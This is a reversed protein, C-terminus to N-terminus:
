KSGATKKELLLRCVLNERSQLESTHEESRMYAVLLDLEFSLDANPPGLAEQVAFEEILGTGAMLNRIKFEVDHLENWTASWNYPATEILTFLPPTNRPGGPFGQWTRGDPLGDFHCTACSLWHSESLRSDAASHFLEAGILVETSV